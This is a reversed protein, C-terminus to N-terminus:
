RSSSINRYLWGIEAATVAKDGLQETDLSVKVTDGGKNTMIFDFIPRMSSMDEKSPAFLVKGDDRPEAEKLVEFQGLSLGDSYLSIVDNTMIQAQLRRYSDIKEGRSMGTYISSFDSDMEDLEDQSYRRGALYRKALSGSSIEPPSAPEEEANVSAVSVPELQASSRSGEVEVPDLSSRSEPSVADRGVAQSSTGSLGQGSSSYIFIAAATAVTLLAIIPGKM